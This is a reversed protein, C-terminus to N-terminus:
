PCRCRNAGPRGTSTPEGVWQYAQRWGTDSGKLLWTWRAQDGGDSNNDLTFLNGREDFALEQPNRLGDCFVELNSGDLEARFVAGTGYRVLHNGEATTVNFGRDGISFYMRGDPGIILGHLDRGLRAVRLGYGKSQSSRDEAVGDGDRDFLRWVDPICTFWIETAGAGDLPRAIVGAGIGM